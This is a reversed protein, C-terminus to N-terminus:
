LYGLEGLSAAFVKARAGVGLSGSVCARAMSKVKLMGDVEMGAPARLAETPAEGAAENDTM